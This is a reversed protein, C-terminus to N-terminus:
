FRRTQGYIRFRASDLNRAEGYLTMRLSPSTALWDQMPGFMERELRVSADALVREGARWERSVVGINRIAASGTAGFYLSFRRLQRWHDRFRGAVSPRESLGLMIFFDAGPRFDDRDSSQADDILTQGLFTRHSVINFNANETM